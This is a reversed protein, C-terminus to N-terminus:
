GEDVARWSPGFVRPGDGQLQLFLSEQRAFSKAELIDMLPVRLESLSMALFPSDTEIRNLTQADRLVLPTSAFCSACDVTGPFVLDPRARISDAILRGCGACASPTCSPCAVEAVGLTGQRRMTDDSEGCATCVLTHVLDFGLEVYADPGLERQAIGLLRGAAVDTGHAVPRVGEPPVPTAAAHSPCDPDRNLDWREHEDAFGNFRIRVGNPVTWPYRGDASRHLYKLTLQAQLGGVMSAVTPATPGGSAGDGGALNLCSWRRMGEEREDETLTCDFCVPFPSLFTRVDGDLFYLGGDIFPTGTRMCARNLDRRTQLNDVGGLVVDVEQFVGLGLTDQVATDFWRVNCRPEIEAAARAAVEAKGKGLDSARFLASRTLNHSEIADFDVILLNGLGALMLNKVIENGLAGAGVVLVKSRRLLDMDWGLEVLRTYRGGDADRPKETM